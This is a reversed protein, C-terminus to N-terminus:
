SAAVSEKRARRPQSGRPRPLSFPQRLCSTILRREVDLGYSVTLMPVFAGLEELALLERHEAIWGLEQVAGEKTVPLPNSLCRGVLAAILITALAFLSFCRDGTSRNRRRISGVSCSLAGVYATRM